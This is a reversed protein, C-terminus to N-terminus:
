QPHHLPLLSLHRLFPPQCLIKRFDEYLQVAATTRRELRLPDLDFGERTQASWSVRRHAWRLYEGYEKAQQAFSKCDTTPNRRASRNRNKRKSM